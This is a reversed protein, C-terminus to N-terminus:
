VEHRLRMENNKRFYNLMEFRLEVELHLPYLNHLNENKSSYNYNANNSM